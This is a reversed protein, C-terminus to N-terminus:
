GKLKTISHEQFTIKLFKDKDKILSAKLHVFGLMNQHNKKNMKVWELRKLTRNKILLRIDFEYELGVIMRVFKCLFILKESHQNPHTPLYDYIEDFSVPGIIIRFKNQCDWVKNGCIMNLGLTNNKKGLVIQDNTVVPTLQPVCQEIDIKLKTYFSLISRIMHASPRIQSFFRSFGSLLDLKKKETKQNATGSISYILKTYKENQIQSNKWSLYFLSILRHHFINLFDVLGFRYSKIEQDKKDKDYYYRKYAILDYWEPLVGSQGILGMFSINMLLKEPTGIEDSGSEDVVLKSIGKNPPFTHKPIVAFKLFEKIPHVNKETLPIQEDYFSELLSVAQFFSYSYYENMLRKIVPADQLRQTTGM